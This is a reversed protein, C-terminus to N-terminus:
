RRNSQVVCFSVTLGIALEKNGCRAETAVDGAGDKKFLGEILRGKIALLEDVAQLIM